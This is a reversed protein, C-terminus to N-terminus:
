MAQTESDPVRGWGGNGPLLGKIKLLKRLTPAQLINM